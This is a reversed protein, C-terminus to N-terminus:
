CAEIHSTTKLGTEPSTLKTKLFWRKAGEWTNGNEM